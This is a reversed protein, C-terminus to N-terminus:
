LESLFFQILNELNYTELIELLSPIRQKVNIGKFKYLDIYLDTIIGIYSFSFM